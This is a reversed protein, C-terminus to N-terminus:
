RGWKKAPLIVHVPTVYPQLTSIAAHQLPVKHYGSSVSLKRQDLRPKNTVPHHDYLQDAAPNDPSARRYIPHLSQIGIALRM